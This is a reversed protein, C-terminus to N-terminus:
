GDTVGRYPPFWGPAAPDAGVSRCLLQYDDARYVHRLARMRHVDPGFRTKFTAVGDDGPRVGGGLHLLPVGRRATERAASWLLGASLHGFGEAFVGFLYDAAHETAGVVVAGLVRDADAVGLLVVDPDATLTRWTEPAFSYLSSASRARFFRGSETALFHTLRERDGLLDPPDADWKRLQRRRSASMRSLLEEPSATLDLVYLEQADPAPEPLGLPLPLVPSLAIYGCVWGEDHAFEQWEQTWRSCDGTGVPGSFGYPTAVDLYGRFPQRAIPLVVRSSPADWVALVVDAGTSLQMARCHTWTHAWAHAVGTLAQEWARRDDLAVLRLPM